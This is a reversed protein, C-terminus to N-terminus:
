LFALCHNFRRRFWGQFVRKIFFLNKRGLNYSNSYHVAVENYRECFRPKIIGDAILRRFTRRITEPRSTRVFM